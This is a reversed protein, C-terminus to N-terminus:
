TACRIQTVHHIWRMWDRAHGDDAAPQDALLAELQESWARDSDSTIQIQVAGLFQGHETGAAFGRVRDARDCAYRQAM